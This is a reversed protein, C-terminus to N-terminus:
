SRPKGKTLLTGELVVSLVALLATKPTIGLEEVKQPNAVAQVAGLLIEIILYAPIDKRVLGAKRGQALLKGFHRQLLDRRMIEIMQFIEPAERRVDRVFPAQIEGAHKQFCEVLRALKSSFDAASDSTIRDLDASVDASKDAIVARLLDLKGPFCTYLTKKSMGLERALDDMTVQRFGRAFFHKRAGAVIRTRSGPAPPDNPATRARASARTVM